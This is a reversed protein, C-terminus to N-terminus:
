GSFPRRSLDFVYHVGSKAMTMLIVGFFLPFLICDFLYAAILKLTVGALRGTEDKLYVTLEGIGQKVRSIKEKFDLAGLGAFSSGDFFEQQLKEPALNQGFNQLEKHSQEVVPRTIQDSLVAAATVSLPLFLYFALCLSTLFRSSERLFTPLWAQQPRVQGAIYWLLLSFLLATLVWRAILDLGTLALQMVMIITGGALAAKWAMDVYDYVPQVVDGLELQFGIGVESGEIVALGSKISSLAVFGTLSKDFAEELYRTNTQTLREVGCRKLGRDILGAASIVVAILLFLIWVAKKLWLRM